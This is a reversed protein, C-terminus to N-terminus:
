RRIRGIGDCGNLLVAETPPLQSATSSNRMKGEKQESSRSRRSRLEMTQHSLNMMRTRTSSKSSGVASRSSNNNQHASRGQDPSVRVTATSSSSANHSYHLATTTNGSTAARPRLRMQLQPQQQKHQRHQQQQQQEENVTGGGGGSSSIENQQQQSVMAEECKEEKVQSVLCHQRHQVEQAMTSHQRYPLVVCEDKDKELYSNAEDTVERQEQEVVELKISMKREEEEEVIGTTPTEATVISTTTPCISDTVESSGVTFSQETLPEDANAGAAILFGEERWGGGDTEDREGAEETEEKKMSVFATPKVSAAAIAKRYQSQIRRIRNREHHQLRKALMKREATVTYIRQNLRALEDALAGNKYVLAKITRQLHYLKVACKRAEVDRSHRSLLQARSLQARQPLPSGMPSPQSLAVPPPAPCVFPPPPPAAAGRFAPPIKHSAIAGSGSTPPYGPAPLGAGFRHNSSPMASHSALNSVPSPGGGMPFQQQLQYRQLMFQQQQQHQPVTGAALGVSSNPPTCQPTVIPLVAGGDQQQHNPALLIAATSPSSSTSPHQAPSQAPFHDGSMSSPPQPPPIPSCDDLAMQQQQRAYHQPFSRFPRGNNHNTINNSPSFHSLFPQPPHKFGTASPQLNQHQLQQQQHNYQYSNSPSQQKPGMTNGYQHPTQMARIETTTAPHHHYPSYPPAVTRPSSHHSLEQTHGGGTATLSALETISSANQLVNENNNNNSSHARATASHFDFSTSSSPLHHHDFAPRLTSLRASMSRAAVVQQQSSSVNDSMPTMQQHRHHHVAAPPQMHVVQIKTGTPPFDGHTQPPNQVHIRCQSPATIQENHQTSGGGIGMSPQQQLQHLSADGVSVGGSPHLLLNPPMQQETTVPSQALANVIATVAQTQQQTRRRKVGPSTILQQPQSSTSSGIGGAASAMLNSSCDGSPLLTGASISLSSPLPSTGIAKEFEFSGGGSAVSAITSALADASSAGPTSPGVGITQAMTMNTATGGAPAKRSRRKSPSTLSDSSSTKLASNNALPPLPPAASVTLLQQLQLESGGGSCSASSSPGSTPFSCPSPGGHGGINTTVSPPASEIQPRRRQAANTHQHQLKEALFTGGWGVSEERQQQCLRRVMTEHQQRQRQAAQQQQLHQRVTPGDTALRGGDGVGISPSLTDLSQQPLPQTTSVSTKARATRAACTRKSKGVNAAVSGASNIINLNPSHNQLLLADGEGCSNSGFSNQQLSSPKSDNQVNQQEDTLLMLLSSSSNSQQESDVGGANEGSPGDNGNGYSQQSSPMPVHQDPPTTSASNVLMRQLSYNSRVPPSRNNSNNNNMSHVSLPSEPPASIISGPNSSMMSNANNHNNNNSLGHFSFAPSPMKKIQPQHPPYHHNEAMMSSSAKVANTATASGYQQKQRFSHQHQQGVSGGMRGMPSFENGGNGNSQHSSSGGSGPGSASPFPSAPSCVSSSAGSSNQQQQHNRSYMQTTPNVVAATSSSTSTHQQQGDVDGFCNLQQSPNNHDHLSRKGLSTIPPLSGSLPPPHVSTHDSSTTAASSGVFCHGDQNQHHNTGSSSAGLFNNGGTEDDAAVGGGGGAGLSNLPLQHQAMPSACENLFCRKQRVAKLAKRRDLANEPNENVEVKPKQPMETAQNYSPLPAAPYPAMNNSSCGDGHASPYYAPPASPSSYSQPQQGIQIQQPPYGSPPSTPYPAPNPGSVPGIGAYPPPQEYMFVSEPPPQEPFAHVPAQYGNCQGGTWYYTPPPSYYAGPPPAYPPPANAPRPCFNNAMDSTKLLAQGFDICGGRNFTLKWNAQGEWNGEAQAILEGALYNAGFIPQELKVNRLCGFPMSISKFNSPSATATNNFIIRHSTLYLNGKKTGKFEANTCKDFSLNVERVFLLIIEGNYIIVGRGDPTNATNLSMKACNTFSHDSTEFPVLCVVLNSKTIFDAPFAILNLM